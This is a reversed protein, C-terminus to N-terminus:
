RRYRTGYLRMSLFVHIVELIETVARLAVYHISYKEFRTRSGLAHFPLAILGIGAIEAASNAAAKAKLGFKTAQNRPAPADAAEPIGM